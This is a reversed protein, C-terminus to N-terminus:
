ATRGIDRRRVGPDAGDISQEIADQRVGLETRRQLLAVPALDSARESAVGDDRQEVLHDFLDVLARQAVLLLPLASVAAVHEPAGSGVERTIPLLDFVHPAPDAL